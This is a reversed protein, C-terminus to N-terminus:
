VVSKRDLRTSNPAILGKELKSLGQKTIDGMEQALAELTLGRLLRARRIRDYIM